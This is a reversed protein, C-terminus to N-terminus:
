VPFILNVIYEEETSITKLHYTDGYLLKLRREINALGLGGYKKDQIKSEPHHSNICVFYLKNNEIEIIITGKM